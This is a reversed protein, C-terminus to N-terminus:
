RAGPVSREDDRPQGLLVTTDALPQEGVPEAELPRRPGTGVPWIPVTFSDEAEAITNDRRSRQSTV